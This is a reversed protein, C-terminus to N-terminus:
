CFMRLWLLLLERVKLMVGEVFKKRMFLFERNIMWRWDWMWWDKLMMMLSIFRRLELVREVMVWLIM